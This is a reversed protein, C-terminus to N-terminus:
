YGRWTILNYFTNLNFPRPDYVKFVRKDTLFTTSAIERIDDTYSAGIWSGSFRGVRVASGLHYKFDGDKTGFATYGDIRFKESFRENTIGGLGIRFGELNDFSILNRLDLDVPGFPVYGNIIKRGFRLKSEIRE